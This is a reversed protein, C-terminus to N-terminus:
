GNWNIGHIKKSKEEFKDVFAKFEELIKYLFTMFKKWSIFISTKNEIKKKISNDVFYHM